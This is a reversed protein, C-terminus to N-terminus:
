SRELQPGLGPWMYRCLDGPSCEGRRGSLVIRPVNFRMKNQNIFLARPSYSIPFSFSLFLCLIKVAQMNIIQESGSAM